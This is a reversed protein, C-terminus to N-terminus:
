FFFIFLAIEKEFDEISHVPLVQFIRGLFEFNLVRLDRKIFPKKVWNLKEVLYYRLKNETCKIQFLLFRLIKYEIM